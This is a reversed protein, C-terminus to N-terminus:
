FIIGAYFDLSCELQTGLLFYALITTVVGELAFLMSARHPPIHMQGLTAFMYGFGETFGVCVIMPWGLKFLVFILSSSHLVTFVDVQVAVMPWAWMEPETMLSILTSLAATTGLEIITLDICDARQTGADSVLISLCCTLMALILLVEGQGFGDSEPDSLFYTGVGSVFVAFWTLLGLSSNYCPLFAEALPTVVVFLSNIFAAKGASVTVVGYQQLTSLTFNLLGSLIGWFLLDFRNQTLSPFHSKVAMLIPVDEPSDDAVDTSMVNKMKRRAIAIMSTSVIFRWANYTIPSAIDETAKRMGVFSLGFLVTSFVVQMECVIIKSFIM